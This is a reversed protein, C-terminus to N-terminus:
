FDLGQNLFPGPSKKYRFGPGLAWIELLNWDQPIGFVVTDALPRGPNLDEFNPNTSKNAIQVKSNPNQKIIM